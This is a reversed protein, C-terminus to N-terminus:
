VNLIFLSSTDKLQSARLIKVKLEGSETVTNLFSGSHSTKQALTVPTASIGQGGWPQPRPPEGGAARKGPCTRLSPTRPHTCRSATFPRQRQVRSSLMLRQNEAQATSEKPAPIEGRGRPAEGRQLGRGVYLLRM